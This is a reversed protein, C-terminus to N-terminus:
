TKITKITGHRLLAAMGFYDAISSGPIIYAINNLFNYIEFFMLIVYNISIQLAIQSFLQIKGIPPTADSLTHAQLWCLWFM